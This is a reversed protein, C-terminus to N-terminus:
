QMHVLRNLAALAADDGCVVIIEREDHAVEDVMALDRAARDAQVQAHRLDARGDGVDLEPASLRDDLLAHLLGLLKEIGDRVM